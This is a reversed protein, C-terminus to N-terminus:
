MILPWPSVHTGTWRGDLTYNPLGDETEAYELEVEGISGGGDTDESPYGAVHVAAAV